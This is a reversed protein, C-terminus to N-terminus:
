AARVRNRGAHKADYLARDARQLLRTVAETVESSDSLSAVGLSATVRISAAAGDVAMSECATRIKEATLLAGELPTEPLVVIFEEGGARALWDSGRLCAVSTQAFRILVADGAAHGQSDNIHKFHDLDAMIISLPRQYRRAREVEKPLEDMLYRRNFVGLMPDTTAMRRLQGQAERLSRELKLIRGGANLRALLEAEDAPKRLYDDAGAELGAVIDATSGHHTLLLIYLYGALSAERARRCLTVGDIGPMEWDTILIQIDSRLIRELAEDGNDATEVLYGARTLRQCLIMRQTPEDEVLLLRVSGPM